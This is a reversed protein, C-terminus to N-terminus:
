RSNRMNWTSFWAELNLRALSESQSRCINPFSRGEPPASRRLFMLSMRSQKLHTRSRVTSDENQPGFEDDVLLSVQALYEGLEHAQVPKLGSEDELHDFFATLFRNQASVNSLLMGFELEKPKPDSREFTQATAGLGLVTSIAFACVIHKEFRSKRPM